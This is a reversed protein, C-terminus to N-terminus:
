SVNKYLVRFFNRQVVVSKIQKHEETKTYISFIRHLSVIFFSFRISIKNYGGTKVEYYLYCKIIRFIWKM